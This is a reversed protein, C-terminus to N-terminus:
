ITRLLKQDSVRWLDIEGGAFSAAFLQSDPSFVIQRGASQKPFTRVLEAHITQATATSSFALAFVATLVAFRKSMAYSTRSKESKTIRVSAANSHRTRHGSEVADAALRLEISVEFCTRM